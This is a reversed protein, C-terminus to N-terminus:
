PIPEITLAYPADTRSDSTVASVIVVITASGGATSVTTEGTGDPAIHLREVTIPDDGEDSVIQM